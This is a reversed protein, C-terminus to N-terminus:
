SRFLRIRRRPLKLNNTKAEEFQRDQLGRQQVQGVPTCGLRAQPTLLSYGTEWSVGLIESCVRFCDVFSRHMMTLHYYIVTAPDYQPGAM